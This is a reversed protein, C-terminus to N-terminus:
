RKCETWGGRRRGASRTGNTNKDVPSDLNINAKCTTRLSALICETLFNWHKGRLTSVWVCESCMENRISFVLCVPRMISSIYTHLNGNRLGNSKVRISINWTSLFICCKWEVTKLKRTFPLFFFVRECRSFAISKVTQEIQMKVQYKRDEYLVRRWTRLVKRSRRIEVSDFNIQM